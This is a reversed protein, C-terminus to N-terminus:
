PINAKQDSAAQVIEVLEFHMAMMEFDDKLEYDPWCHRHAEQFHEASRCAEGKWLKEPIDGFRVPYVETVRIRCRLRQRLDFVDVVDGVELGGDDFDGDSEYYEDAKTVTATKKGETIEVVLSDDNEDEGWFQIRKPRNRGLTGTKLTFFQGAVATEQVSCFVALKDIRASISEFEGAVAVHIQRYEEYPKGGYAITSHFRFRDGDITSNSIGLLEPLDANLQNHIKRLRVDERINYWLLGTPAGRDQIAVAELPQLTVNIPFHSLCLDDFYALLDDARDTAFSIKLSIHQPLLLATVGIGYKGLIALTKKRIENQTIDDLLAAICFYM